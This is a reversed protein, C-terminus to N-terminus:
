GGIPLLVTLFGGVLLPPAYAFVGSRGRIRLWVGWVAGAVTGMILMALWNTWGITAAAGGLLPMLRVDGFGIGAGTIRWLFWFLAGAALAGALARGATRWGALVGVLPLALGLAAWGVWTVQRPLWTTRADIAGATTGVVALVLWPALLAGPLRLAAVLTSAATLAAVTTVFPRTALAAYPPKGAGDVPEPLARLVRPLLVWSFLGLAMALASAVPWPVTTM